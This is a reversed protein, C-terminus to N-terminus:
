YYRNVPYIRSINQFSKGELVQQAFGDDVWRQRSGVIRDSDLLPIWIRYGVAPVFDFGIYKAYIMRPDDMIIQDSLEPNSNGCYIQIRPVGGHM